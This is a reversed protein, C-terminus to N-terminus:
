HGVTSDTFKINQVHLTWIHYIFVIKAPSKKSKKLLHFKLSFILHVNNRGKVVRGHDVSPLACHRANAYIIVNIM